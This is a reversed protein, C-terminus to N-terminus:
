PLRRRPRASAGPLISLLDGERIVGGVIVRVGIGAGGRGMARTMGPGTIRELYGCPPRPRDYEVVVGDGGIAIRRDRLEELDIGRTVLNRRHQGEGVEVGFDREMVELGEVAILTVECVDRPSFRGTGLLYRDGELGRGAVAVVESRRQMPEGASDTLYIAEISGANM